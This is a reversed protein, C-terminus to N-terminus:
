MVVGERLRWQIKAPVQPVVVMSTYDAKPMGQEAPLSMEITRVFTAIVVGLQVYAFQEGICRHRGAGFPLYPSSAGKSVLGYGYDVKETSVDDKQTAWREPKFKDPEPFHEADMAAVGPCTLVYEGKPVHMDTNNIPLDKIIKRLLSHLPPHMRLVERIVYNHEDLDKLHDYSIDKLSGDANRGIVREQEKLLGAVVDPREALHLLCWASVTSSTHQGAMLLAIMIGAIEHDTLKRGEKYECNMLNWIMDQAPAAGTKRRQTIIDSYVKHMKDRAADRKKNQPLPMWPAIFNIPKFGGDLDTYLQAFSANMSERVEEGQLTRSATYIILESMGKYADFSGSKRECARVRPSNRLFDLCEDVIMPVYAKFNEVSLGYKVFKKQEMLVHNPVDYVVETGFVPTTLGTYAEEANVHALKGNLIQESGAPGLMVTVKRGLLVFTFVDGFRKRHEAFFEYPRTGYSVASGLFPVLHFIVPPKSKDRPLLQSVIHWSYFIAIWSLIFVIPRDGFQEKLKGLGAEVLDLIAM